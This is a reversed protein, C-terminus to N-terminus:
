SQTFAYNVTQVPSQKRGFRSMLRQMFTLERLVFREQNSQLWNLGTETVFYISEINGFDDGVEDMMLMSKRLLATIALTIAIPAYGYQMMDQRIKQFYVYDRPSNISQAVCLLCVLEHETLSESPLSSKSITLEESMKDQMEHTQISKLRSTIKSKLLDLNASEDTSYLLVSQNWTELPFQKWKEHSCLLIVPKDCAMAFGLHYWLSPHQSSVDMMCVTADRISDELDDPDVKGNLADIRIAEFGANRVSPVIIDGFRKDLPGGDLSPIILCKSM